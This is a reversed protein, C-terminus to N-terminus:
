QEPEPPPEVPTPQNPGDNRYYPTNPRLDLVTFPTGDKLLAGLITLKNDIDESRGFMITRQDPTTVIMGNDGDWGISAPQLAVEAPLRLALARGLKLAVPDVTDNPELQRNTRDEIVLTNTLPASADASLVRGDADLLYLAGGSRWRLEPRREEVVIALQDPLIVSVNAREIYANAKLREGIQHTDILWISQGRAAALNAVAQENLAQAGEVRIDQVTFSPATAIYFLSGLSAFLLLLSFMRGSTFWDGAARRPGPTVAQAPHNSRTKRRAAMRERTNPENYDFQNMAEYSSRFAILSSDYSNM